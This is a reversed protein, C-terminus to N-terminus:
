ARNIAREQPKATQVAQRVEPRHGLNWTQQQWIRVVGAIAAPAMRAVTLDHRPSYSIVRAVGDARRARYPPPLSDPMAPAALGVCPHNNDFVFTGQYDPNRAGSIRTNGPCLYCDLLYRPVDQAQHQIIGGSWPRGQRHTAIIV